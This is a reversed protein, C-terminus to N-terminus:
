CPSLYNPPRLGCLCNFHRWTSHHLSGREAREHWQLWEPRMGDNVFFYALAKYCEELPSCWSRPYEDMQGNSLTYQVMDAAEEGLRFLGATASSASTCSSLMSVIEFCRCPPVGLANLWLEFILQADFRDLAAGFEDIENMLEETGNFTVIIM